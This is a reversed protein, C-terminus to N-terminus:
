VLAYRPLHVNELRRLSRQVMSLAKAIHIYLLLNFLYYSNDIM